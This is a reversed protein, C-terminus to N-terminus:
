NVTVMANAAGSVSDLVVEVCTLTVTAASPTFSVANYGNATVGNSGGVNTFMGGTITWVYSAYPRARVSANVTSGLGATPQVIIPPTLAPAVAAIDFRAPVSISTANSQTCFLAAAGPSPPAQFLISTSASSGVITIGVGRCDIAVGPYVGIRASYQNGSIVIAPAEIVPPPLAADVDRVLAPKSQAQAHSAALSTFVGVAAAAVSRWTSRRIMDSEEFFMM